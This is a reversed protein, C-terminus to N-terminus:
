GKLAGALIGRIFYRGLFIFFLLPIAVSVLAAVMQQNYLVLITGQAEVRFFTQICCASDVETAGEL